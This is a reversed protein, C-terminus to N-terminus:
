GHAPYSYLEQMGKGRADDKEPQQRRGGTREYCMTSKVPGADNLRALLEEVQDMHSVKHASYQEHCHRNELSHFPKYM